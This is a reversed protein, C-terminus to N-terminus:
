CLRIMMGHHACYPYRPAGISDLHFRNRHATSKFELVHARAAPANDRHLARHFGSHPNTHFRTQRCKACLIAISLWVRRAGLYVDAM